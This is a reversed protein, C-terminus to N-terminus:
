NNVIVGDIYTVTVTKGYVTVGGATVATPTVEFVYRGEGPVGSIAYGFLYAFENILYAGTQEAVSAVTTVVPKKTGNVTGNLTKYVNHSPNAFYKGESKVEIEFNVSQYELETVGGIFRLGEEGKQEGVLALLNFFAVNNEEAWARVTASEYSRIVLDDNTVYADEGESYYYLFTEGEEETLELDNSMVTLVTLNPCESIALEHVSEVSEPIRIETVLSNEYFVGYYYYKKGVKEMEGYLSVVTYEKGKTGTTGDGRITSPVNVVSSNGTYKVLEATAAEEDLVVWEYPLVTTVTGGVYEKVYLPLTETASDGYAKFPDSAVPTVVFSDEEELDEIVDFVLEFIKFDDTPAVANEFGGAFGLSFTRAEPLITIYSDNVGQIKYNKSAQMNIAVKESASGSLMFSLQTCSALKANSASMVVPVRIETDGVSVVTDKVSVTVPDFRSVYLKAGEFSVKGETSVNGQWAMVDAYSASKSLSLDYVDGDKADEPITVQINFYTSADFSGNGCAYSFTGNSNVVGAGGGVPVTSIAISQTECIEAEGASLVAQFKQIQNGATNLFGVKVTVTQGPAGYVDEMVYITPTTHDATVTFASVPLCALLLVTMLLFSIIRNRM